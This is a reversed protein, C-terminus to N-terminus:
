ALLREGAPDYFPGHHVQAKLLKGESMISFTAGEQEAMGAPLWCLGIVEDLTPSYRSSTVWGIIEPRGDAASEVIQLGEDPASGPRLMKFGVLRQKPGEAAIRTLPRKGLFEQKDLKVAWAMDASIPDSLADTDHGVIVHAKELRLVRQAEVGFPAIEYEAGAAMLSEWLRLGYGAPCHIEYSLEGTFGIRMLRCPVGDLSADRVSMYPFAEGGVDQETLKQLLDRSRPGALNFAAYVETVNALHVGEGWGSQLWWQMWEYIATAGSSTTTTYWDLDDTHATVGDDMVIGEDNCMLGYRVRGLPLKQWKNVYLRDLLDPVGRGTLRLKGLTSIDILGVRERVAMVEAEPDGYHEPRLWLGAVMMKAGRRLHWDHVATVQVPEMHQGALAGLKVPKMPPRATTTGTQEITWENARACLHIANQSCMKGQCPGMSITSYRKLLEISNYGEAISTELDEDTVDECFCLFRKKNGPVRVLTSTAPVEGASAERTAQSEESSPVAGFGLYAAAQHGALRGERLQNEVHAAGNVRGATFIGAPLAAPLFEARIEDYALEGGAQYVLGNAPAWGVSIAILDCDLSKAASRDVRGGDALPALIASNVSDAGGAAAITHRWFVEAGAERVQEVIAEPGAARLDAVAVVDLAASQLDSAVAWGDDNATVVVAKQGPAVSYLGLLRRVASGLMVGPLDNNDFVLPQEYAGTAFVVSKARIKYLRKGQVASLWNDEYISLVGTNKLIRVKEQHGALTAELEKLSEVSATHGAGAAYRLHGGLWTNEDFLHVRAGQEAAAIAASMGAPGGGVVAVDASLYEKDYSGSQTKRSVKGLGAATRLLRETLPWLFQPRIFAKYYFGVPLFRDVLATMSMVDRKLSPWVNQAQVEMEAEVSRTCARVNPEEGVQVLCNPCHGACCMLGRPRHYKFSRSFVRVGAAALASAITDGPHATYSKGNFSFSFLAGREIVEGPRPELRNSAMKLEPRTAM